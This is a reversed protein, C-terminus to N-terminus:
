GTRDEYRLVGGPIRPVDPPQHEAYGDRLIDSQGPEAPLGDHRGGVSRNADGFFTPENSQNFGVKVKLNPSPTFSVKGFISHQRLGTLTPAPLNIKARSTKGSVVFTANDGLPGTVWGEVFHGVSSEYDQKVHIQQGTDPDQENVWEPNNWQLRDRWYGNAGGRQGPTADYVNPGRHRKGPLEVRLDLGGRYI